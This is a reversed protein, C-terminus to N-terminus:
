SRDSVFSLLLLGVRVAAAWFQLGPFFKRRKGSMHIEANQAFSTFCYFRQRKM